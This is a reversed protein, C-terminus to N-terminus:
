AAGEPDALGGWGPPLFVDRLREGGLARRVREAILWSGDVRRFAWRNMGAGWVVMGQPERVIVLDYSEGYASDGDVHVRLDIASLHGSRGEINMHGAPDEILRRLGERGEFVLREGRYAKTAPSAVIDYVGDDTWLAVWDDHLGMDACFGYRGLLARLEREDELRGLRAELDGPQVDTPM